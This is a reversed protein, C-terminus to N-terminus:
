RNSSNCYRTAHHASYGLGLDHADLMDSMPDFTYHESSDSKTHGLRCGIFIIAVGIIFVWNQQQLVGVLKLGVAALLVLIHANLYTSTFGGLRPKGETRWRRYVALMVFDTPWCFVINENWMFEPITTIGMLLYFGLGFIAAYLWWLGFVWRAIRLFGGRLSGPYFRERSKGSLLALGLGVAALLFVLHAIWTNGHCAPRGPREVLLVPPDAILTGDSGPQIAMGVVRSLDVPLYMADWGDVLRNQNPNALMDFLFLSELRGAMAAMTRDRYDGNVPLDAAARSLAGRTIDNLVDRVRTSCNDSLHEYLYHRNEPRSNWALRRVLQVRQQATLALRQSWITRGEAAYRHLSDPWREVILRFQGTGRLYELVFGPDGFPAYGYSFLQPNRRNGSVLLGTHGFRSWIADGPGFTILEIQLEPDGDARGQAMCPRCTLVVLALCASLTLIETISRVQNRM